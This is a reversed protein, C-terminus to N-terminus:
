ARTSEGGVEAGHPQGAFPDDPLAILPARGQEVADFHLLHLGVGSAGDKLGIFRRGTAEGGPVPTPWFRGGEDLAAHLIVDDMRVYALPLWFEESTVFHVALFLRAEGPSGANWSYVGPAREVDASVHPPILEPIVGRAGRRMWDLWVEEGTAEYLRYWMRSTGIGGHAWSTSYRATDSSQGSWRMDTTPIYAASGDSWAISQLYRAGELAAKLFAEEGTRQFQSALFYVIGADGHAFNPMSPVGRHFEWKLGCEAPRAADVLYAAAETALHAAQEDDLEISAEDLFLGVGANGFVLDNPYFHRTASFGALEDPVPVAWRIGCAAPESLSRLEAVCKRAADAFRKEGTARHMYLYALGIGALGSYLGVQGECRCEAILHDAGASARELYAEEDAAKWCELLFLLVGASGQFINSSGEKSGKFPPWVCGSPTPLANSVVWDAAELATELYRRADGQGRETPVIVM